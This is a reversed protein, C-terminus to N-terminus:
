AKFPTKKKGNAAEFFSITAFFFLHRPIDLPFSVLSEEGASSPFTKCCQCIAVRENRAEKVIM